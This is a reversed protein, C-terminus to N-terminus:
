KSKLDFPFTKVCGSAYMVVIYVHINYMFILRNHLDYKNLVNQIFVKEDYESVKNTFFIFVM